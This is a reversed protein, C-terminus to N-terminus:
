VGDAGPKFLQAFPIEEGAVAPFLECDGEVVAVGVLCAIDDFACPECCGLILRARCADGREVAGLAPLLEDRTGVGGEILGFAVAVSRNLAGDLLRRRCRVGGKRTELDRHLREREVTM